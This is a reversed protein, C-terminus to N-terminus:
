LTCAQEILAILRRYLFCSRNRPKCIQRHDLEIGYLEGVDPDASDQAVIRLFVVSMLTMKTEFLSVMEPNFHEHQCLQLFRNHLDLVEPSDKAVEMLEISRRTLPTKILALSSGRHPVSYFLIGRTRCCFPPLDATESKPLENSESQRHEFEDVLMQKVFLGGKSHAVWIIPRSGVGIERLKKAMEESRQVMTSRNAQQMWLPRWLFPDTPYDLAIVRVGPCDRPLWEKPWCHAYPEEPPAASASRSPLQGRLVRRAPSATRARQGWEGQRWTNRLSGHLGHIFIVDATPEAPEVLVQCHVCAESLAGLERAMPVTPTARPKAVEISIRLAGLVKTSGYRSVLTIYSTVFAFFRVVQRRWLLGLLSQVAALLQVRAAKAATELEASNPKQQM